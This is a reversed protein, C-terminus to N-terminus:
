NRQAIMEALTGVGLLPSIRQKLWLKRWSYRTELTRARVISEESRESHGNQKDLMESVGWQSLPEYVSFLRQSSEDGCLGKEPEV